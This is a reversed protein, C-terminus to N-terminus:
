RTPSRLAVANDADVAVTAVQGAALPLSVTDGDIALPTGTREDLDSLWARSIPMFFRLKATLAGSEPGSIRVLLRDDAEARKVAHLRVGAPEIALLSRDGPVAELLAVAAPRILAPELARAPDDGFALAYRFRLRGHGQAEPTRLQYGAHGRRSSLDSRSMYGVSRLVTVLLAGKALEV